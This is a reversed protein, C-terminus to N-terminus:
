GVLNKFSPKAVELLVLRRVKARMLRAYRRWDVVANLPEFAVGYARVVAKRGFESWFYLKGTSQRPNLCVALEHERFQRMIFWVDRLQLHPDLTQAAQCIQTATM